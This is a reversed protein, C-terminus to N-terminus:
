EALESVKGAFLDDVEKESVVHERDYLRRLVSTDKTTFLKAWELMLTKADVKRWQVDQAPQNPKHPESVEQIMARVGDMAIGQKIEWMSADKDAAKINSVEIADVDPMSLVKYRVSRGSLGAGALHIREM